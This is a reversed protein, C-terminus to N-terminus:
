ESRHADVPNISAARRAPLFRAAVAAAALVAAVGALTAADWSSVGFLLSRMVGAAALSGAAGLAIGALTLWAAEKMVLSYVRLLQAGLAM